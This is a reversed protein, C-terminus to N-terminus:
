RQIRAKASKDIGKGNGCPVAKLELVLADIRKRFEPNLTDLMSRTIYKPLQLVKPLVLWASTRLHDIELSPQEPVM